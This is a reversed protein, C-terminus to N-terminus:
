TSLYDDLLRRGRRHRHTPPLVSFRFFGWTWHLAPRFAYTITEIAAACSAAVASDYESSRGHIRYRSVVVPAARDARPAATTLALSTAITFPLVAHHPSRPQIRGGAAAAGCVFASLHTIPGSDSA